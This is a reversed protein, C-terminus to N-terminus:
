EGKSKYLLVGIFRIYLEHPLSIVLTVLTLIDTMKSDIIVDGAFAQAFSIMLFIGIGCNVLIFIGIGTRNRYALICEYFLDALAILVGIYTILGIWSVTESKWRLYILTGIFAVLLIDKVSGKM